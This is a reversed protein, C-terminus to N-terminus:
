ITGNANSEGNRLMDIQYEINAREGNTLDKCKLKEKLSQIEPTDEVTRKGYKARYEELVRNARELSRNREADNPDPIYHMRKGMEEPLMNWIAHAEEPQLKNVWDLDRDNYTFNGEKPFHAYWPNTYEIVPMCREKIDAVTPMYKSEGIWDIVAKNVQQFPIDALQKQWLGCMLPIDDSDIKTPYALRLSKVIVVTETKNM